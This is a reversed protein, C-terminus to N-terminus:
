KKRGTQNGEQESLKITDSPRLRKIFLFSSRFHCWGWNSALWHSKKLTATLYEPQMISFWINKLLMSWDWPPYDNTKSHVNATINPWFSRQLLSYFWCTYVQSIIPKGNPLLNIFATLNYNIYLLLSNSFLNFSKVNSWFVQLFFM